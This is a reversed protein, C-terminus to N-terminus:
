LEGDMFYADVDIRPKTQLTVAKRSERIGLHVRGCTQGGLGVEQISLPCDGAELGRSAEM